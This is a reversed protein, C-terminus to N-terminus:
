VVEIGVMSYFDHATRCLQYSHKDILFALWLDILCDKRKSRTRSSELTCVLDLLSISKRKREQLKEIAEVLEDTWRELEEGHALDKVADLDIPQSAANRDPLGELLVAADDIMAECIAQMMEPESVHGLDLASPLAWNGELQVPLPLLPIPEIYQDLDVLM